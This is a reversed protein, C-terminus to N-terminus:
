SLHLLPLLGAISSSGSRHDSMNWKKVWQINSGQQQQQQEQSSKTWVRVVRDQGSAALYEENFDVDWTSREFGCVTQVLSISVEISSSYEEIHWIKVTMDRSSSVMMPWHLRVRNLLHVRQQNTRWVLFLKIKTTSGTKGLEM